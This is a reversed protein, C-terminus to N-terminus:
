LTRRYRPALLHWVLAIIALLLLIHFLGGALALGVHLGVGAIWLLFLVLAVFLLM